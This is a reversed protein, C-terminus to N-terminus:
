RLLSVVAFLVLGIVAVLMLGKLVTLRVNLVRGSLKERDNEPVVRGGTHFDGVLAIM